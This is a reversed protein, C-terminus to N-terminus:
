VFRHMFVTQFSKLQQNLADGMPKAKAEQVHEGQHLSCVGGCIDKYRGFSHAHHLRHSLEWQKNM